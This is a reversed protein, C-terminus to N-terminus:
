VPLFFNNVKNSLSLLDPCNRDLFQYQWDQKIDKGTLHKIHNWWNTSSSRDLELDAVKNRYYLRKASKIEKQVNNRWMKYTSSDKGHKIFAEQRKKISLKLRKTIWPRDSSNMKVTRWPFLLEIAGKLESSFLQFKEKCSAAELVHAWDKELMWRGFPRWASERMDRVRVKRNTHSNLSSTVPRALITFHDSAGIKPLQSLDFLNPMNTLFWDLTGSDRTKFKVMQKINNAHTLEKVNFGTSTPDFDGTIIALANPHKVLLTDLNTQVHDRLAANEIEGNATPHYIVGLIICSVSRPLSCPKLIMWLSEINRDECNVLRMCTYAFAVGVTLAKM